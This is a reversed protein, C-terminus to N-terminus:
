MCGTPAAKGAAKGKAAEPPPATVELTGMSAEIAPELKYKQAQPKPTAWTGIVAYSGADVYYFDLRNEIKAAVGKEGPMPQSIETRMRKLTLPQDAPTPLSVDSFAAGPSMAALAKALM